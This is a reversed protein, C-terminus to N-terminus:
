VNVIFNLKKLKELPNPSQFLISGVAIRDVGAKLLPGILDDRVGGDIEIALDERHNRAMKIKEFIVQSDGIHEIDGFTQGQLGPHVSMITLQDIQHLVSEVEHLPTEPNIAVGVNLGMGLKIHKVVEALPRHMEASVIARTFTPVHEKWAEIIPIPNEGMLHLEFQVDTRLAGIREADFWNTNPFLTGDLVDVQVLTCESEILRLQKEFEEHSHALIAPVIQSM